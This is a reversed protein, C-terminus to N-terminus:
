TGMVGDEEKGHQAGGWMHVRLMSTGTVQHGGEEETFMEKAGVSPCASPLHFIPLAKDRHHGWSHM